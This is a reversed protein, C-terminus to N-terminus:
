DTHALKLGARDAIKGQVAKLAVGPHRVAAFRPSHGNARGAVTYGYGRV